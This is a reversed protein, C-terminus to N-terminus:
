AAKEWFQSVLYNVPLSGVAYNLTGAAADDPTEGLKCSYLCMKTYNAELGSIGKFVYLILKMIRLDELGGTTMVLLDDAYHLNCRRGFDGLPVGVLIQSKLAHM